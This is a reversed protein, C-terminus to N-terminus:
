LLERLTQLHELAEGHPRGVLRIFFDVGYWEGDSEFISM